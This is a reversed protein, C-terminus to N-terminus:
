DAEAILDAEAIKEQDEKLTTRWLHCNGGILDQVGVAMTKLQWQWGKESWIRVAKLNLGQQIHSVPGSSFSCYTNVNKPSSLYHLPGKLFDKVIIYITHWSFYDVMNQPKWISDLATNMDGKLSIIHGSGMWTVRSWNWFDILIAVM